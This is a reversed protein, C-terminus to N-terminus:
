VKPLSKGTTYCKASKRRCVLPGETANDRVTHQRLPNVPLARELGVGACGCM